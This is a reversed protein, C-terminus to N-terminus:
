VRPPSSCIRPRVIRRWSSLSRSHRSLSGGPPLRKRFFSANESCTSVSICLLFESFRAYSLSLFFPLTRSLTFSLNLPHSHARSLSLSPSLSLFLPLSLYLSLCIRLALPHAHCFLPCFYLFRSKPEGALARQCFSTTVPVALVRFRVTCPDKYRTACGRLRRSIIFRM